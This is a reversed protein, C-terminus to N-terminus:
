LPLSYASSNKNSSKFYLGLPNWSCCSMFVDYNEEIRLNYDKM